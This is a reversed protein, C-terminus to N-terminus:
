EYQHSLINKLKRMRVNRYRWAFDRVSPAFGAQDMPMYCLAKGGGKHAHTDHVQVAVPVRRGEGAAAGAMSVFTVRMASTIIPLPCTNHM